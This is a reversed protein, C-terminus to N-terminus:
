WRVWPSVDQVDYAVTVQRNLSDTITAVRGANYTFTMKNGNRDRIWTVYGADIRYRTSDRLLLYGSINQDTVGSGDSYYLDVIDNDSIFTAATGDATVFVKGRNKGSNACTPVTYSAGGTVQDRLEYETGDAATFTLRTLTRWARLIPDTSCPRTLFAGYRVHMVGPGYGPSSVEWWDAEPYYHTETYDDGQVTYTEVQWKKEIPLMMTHQVGGRGAIGILPLRFGLSGNYLNINDFGSLAYSGAPAGPKLGTPTSGDTPYSSQAHARALCLLVLLVTWCTERIVRRLIPRVTIAIM